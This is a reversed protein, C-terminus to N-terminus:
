LMEGSRVSTVFERSGDPLIRYRLRKGQKSRYLFNRIIRQADPNDEQARVYAL